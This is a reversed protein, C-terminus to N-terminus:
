RWCDEIAVGAKADKINRRGVNDLQLTGCRDGKMSGTPTAQLNFSSPTLSNTVFDIAYTQAGQPPVIKLESPLTMDTGTGVARKFSDNQSYFRQMYQAAELLQARAEARRSKRVSEVYSPYAISALIAVIAVVIMVEILTFGRLHRMSQEPVRMAASM